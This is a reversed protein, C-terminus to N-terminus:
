NLKSFVYENLALDHILNERRQLILVSFTHSDLALM